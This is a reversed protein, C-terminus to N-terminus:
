GRIASLNPKAVFDGAAAAVAHVALFVGRFDLAQVFRWEPDRELYVARPYQV